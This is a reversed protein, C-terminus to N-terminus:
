AAPMARAYTVTAQAALRDSSETWIRVDCVANRRGLSLLEGEVHIAGPKAPRLFNISLASTVAMLEPGVHAMVIAYGATDALSMLVPGSISGGPRLMSPDFDRLLTIRGPMVERVIALTPGGTPFASGLVENLEDASLRVQWRTM